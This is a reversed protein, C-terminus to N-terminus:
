YVPWLFLHEKADHDVDEETFGYINIMEDTLKTYVREGSWTSDAVYGSITIDSLLSYGNGESNKSIVIEMEQEVKKLEEILERVKM